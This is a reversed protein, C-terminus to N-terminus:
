QPLSGPLAVPNERKSPSLNGTTKQFFGSFERQLILSKNVHLCTRKKNGSIPWCQSMKVLQMFNLTRAKLDVVLIDGDWAALQICCESPNMLCRSGALVYLNTIPLGVSLENLM